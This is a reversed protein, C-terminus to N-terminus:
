TTIKSPLVVTLIDSGNVYWMLRMVQKTEPHMQEVVIEWGDDGVETWSKARLEIFEELAMMNSSGDQAELGKVVPTKHRLTILAPGTSARKLAWGMSITM